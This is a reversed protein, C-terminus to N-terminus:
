LFPSQTKAINLVNGLTVCASLFLDLVPVRTQQSGCLSSKVVPCCWLLSGSILELQGGQCSGPKCMPSCLM